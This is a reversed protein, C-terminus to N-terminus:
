SWLETHEFILYRKLWQNPRHYHQLKIVTLSYDSDFGLQMEDELADKQKWFIM